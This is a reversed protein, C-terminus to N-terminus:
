FPKNYDKYLQPTDDGIYLLYAPNQDSSLHTVSLIQYM